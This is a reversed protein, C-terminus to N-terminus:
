KRLAIERFALLMDKSDKVEICTILEKLLHKAAVEVAINPHYYDRAFHVYKMVMFANFWKFFRTHFTCYNSTNNRIENLKKNFNIQLAFNFISKPLEKMLSSFQSSDVEYYKTLQLFFFKLDVFSQFHYTQYIPSSNSQQLIDAIAKGTGFPVRDSIRPSPIVCTTNLESFHGLPTFKHLFYFDEGAKRRNMGGQQRYANSRVAMSSGITQYAYPFGAWKQAEIYYRLHLEYQVIAQYVEESFETGAIPHEFHISCAQTKPYQLFHTELAEFYNKNCQSDGDFCAIIGKPNSVSELRQAAEDMGIKRALGVGAHKPSLQPYHRILFQLWSHSQHNAWKQADEYTRLNQLQIELPSNMSGNIIVIVEVTCKPANCNSLSQLSRILQNENYCPIVVVIGLNNLPPNHEIEM